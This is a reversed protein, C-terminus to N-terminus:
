SIDKFLLLKNEIELIENELYNNEYKNNSIENELKLISTQLNAEDIIIENKKNYEIELKDNNFKIENNRQKYRFTIISILKSIFSSLENHRIQLTEIMNDTEYLEKLLKEIKYNKDTLNKQLELISEEKKIIKQQCELIKSQLQKKQIQWEAKEKNHKNNKFIAVGSGTAIGSILTASAAVLIPIPM